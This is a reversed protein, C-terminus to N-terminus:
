TTDFQKSWDKFNQSAKRSIAAIANFVESFAVGIQHLAKNIEAPNQGLQELLEAIEQQKKLEAQKAKKKRIRKNM